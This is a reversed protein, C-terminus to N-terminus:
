PVIYTHKLETISQVTAAPRIKEAPKELTDKLSDLCKQYYVRLNPFREV